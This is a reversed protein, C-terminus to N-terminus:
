ERREDAQTHASKGTTQVSEQEVDLIAQSIEFNQLLTM